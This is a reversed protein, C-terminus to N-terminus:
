DALTYAASTLTFVKNAGPSLYVKGAADVMVVSVGPLAAALAMGRERGLAFLTTSLADADISSGTAITVSVLGNEVPYGTAPDLIHHYRKGGAELFREYVGSTVVTMDLGEVIGLYEGRGAQPDPVQVGIRWNGGGRKAGLAYVNGGLDVIAAKVGGAALLRKLEDAAYGKAIAGLDLRMGAKALFVTVKAKDLIVSKRDALALAAEIEPASPIREGDGGIDWLRVLPGITPDFAGGSLEAYRLAQEIVAFTDPSVAVPSKGAADAIRSLESGPEQASMRAHIEALRAFVADFAAEDGGDMFTITCVTGLQLETRRRPEAPPRSAACASMPLSAVFAVFLLLTVRIKRSNM